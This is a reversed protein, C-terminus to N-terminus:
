LNSCYYYLLYFENQPSVSEPSRDLAMMATKNLTCFLVEAHQLLSLHSLFSQKGRLEYPQLLNTIRTGFRINKKGRHLYPKSRSDSPRHSGMHNLRPILIFWHLGAILVDTWKMQHFLSSLMCTMFPSLLPMMKNPKKEWEENTM